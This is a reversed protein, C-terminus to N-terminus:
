SVGIDVDHILASLAVAFLALPDTNIGHTYHHLHAVVDEGKEEMEKIEEEDMAPAVYRKRLKNVSMTFHCAHEFNHFPNNRYAMAIVSVYQRTDDIFEQSIAGESQNM